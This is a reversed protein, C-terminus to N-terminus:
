ASLGSATRYVSEGEFTLVPLAEGRELMALIALLADSADVPIRFYLMEGVAREAEESRGVGSRRAGCFSM